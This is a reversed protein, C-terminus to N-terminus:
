KKDGLGQQQGKVKDFWEEFRPNNGCSDILCDECKMKSCVFNNM